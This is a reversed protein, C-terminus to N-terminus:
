TGGDNEWADIDPGDVTPHKVQKLAATVNRLVEVLDAFTAPREPCDARHETQPTDPLCGLCTKTKIVIAGTKPFGPM